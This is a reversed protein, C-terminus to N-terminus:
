GEIRDAFTRRDSERFRTESLTYVPAHGIREYDCLNIISAFAEDPPMMDVRTQLTVGRKALRKEIEAFDQCFAEMENRLQVAEDADPLRDQTDIGGLEMTIQGDSSQTVSIAKGDGLTYLDNHFRRGSRKKVDRRGILDYGMELMVQNVNDSIYAQEQQHLMAARLTRNEEELLTLADDGEPIERASAGILSGLATNEERLDVCRRRYEASAAQYHALIPMGTVAIFSSLQSESTVGALMAAARQADAKLMDPCARSDLIEKLKQQWESRRQASEDVAPRAPIDFSYDGSLDSEIGDKVQQQASAAEHSASDMAHRLSELEKATQEEIAKLEKLISKKEALAAENYVPTGYDFSGLQKLRSLLRSEEQQTKEYCESLQSATGKDMGTRRQVRKLRSLLLEIDHGCGDIQASLSRISAAYRIMQQQCLTQELINRTIKPDVRYITVKPGSM